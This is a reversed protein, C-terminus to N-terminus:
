MWQKRRFFVLMGLIVALLISSFSMFKLPDILISFSSDFALLALSIILESAFIITTFITFVEMINNSRYNLLALQSDQIAEITDQYNELMVWLDETDEVLGKL